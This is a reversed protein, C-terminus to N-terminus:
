RQGGGEEGFLSKISWSTYFDAMEGMPDDWKENNLIRKLAIITFNFKNKDNEVDFCISKIYHDSIERHKKSFISHKLFDKSSARCVYTIGDPGSSSPIM